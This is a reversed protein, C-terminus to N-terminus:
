QEMRPHPSPRPPTAFGGPWADLAAAPPQPPHARHHHNAASTLASSGPRGAESQPLSTPAPSRGVIPFVTRV